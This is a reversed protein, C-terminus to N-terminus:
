ICGGDRGSVGVRRTRGRVPVAGKDAGALTLDEILKTMLLIGNGGSSSSHRGHVPVAAGCIGPGDITAPM